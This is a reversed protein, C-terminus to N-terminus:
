ILRMMFPPKKTNTINGSLFWKGNVLLNYDSDASLRMLAEGGTYVLDFHFLVYEDKGAEKSKWIWKANDFM